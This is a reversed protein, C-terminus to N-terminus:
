TNLEVAVEHEAAAELVAEMDFVMPSREQIKRETPYALIHV